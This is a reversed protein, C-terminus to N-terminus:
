RASCGREPVHRRNKPSHRRQTRGGGDRHGGDIFIRGTIPELVSQKLLTSKGSSLRRSHRFGRQPQGFSVNQMLVNEGYGATFDEVRIIPDSPM